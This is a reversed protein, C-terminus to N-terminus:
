QRRYFNAVTILDFNSLFYDCDAIREPKGATNRRTDYATYVSGQPGQRLVVEDLRVSGDIMPIGTPREDVHLALHNPDVIM